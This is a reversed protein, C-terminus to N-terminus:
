PAPHADPLGHQLEDPVRNPTDRMQWVVQVALLSAALTLGFLATYGLWTVLVGSLGTGLLVIGLLSNTFGLYLTRETRPAIELLLSQAAVGVGAEKVGVLAFIPILLWGVLGGTLGLPGALLALMVVLGTLGVGALAGVAMIRRYGWRVSLRGLGITALLNSATFVALYLGIMELPGGLHHQVYIAFFPTSASGLSLAIRLWIFRRYHSDRQVFQMAQNFQAVFSARARTSKEEPEPVLSFAILGLTAFVWGIAFLLGFNYPFALPSQADLLWRVLASGGIGALSGLTIRWAFFLGRQQPPITKGVIELFPLGCFGAALAYLGFTLFFAILLRNADRLIFPAIAMAGWAVVRVAAWIRYMGVKRPLTQVYGSLWLQPLFWGADRMPAILGLWLPSQTLHSVFAVLVLTPDTLTEALTFLLGNAVGLQFSRASSSKELM